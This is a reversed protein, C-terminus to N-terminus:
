ETEEVLKEVNVSYIAMKGDRDTQFLVRQSDPSFRPSVQAPDSARHECLSLERRVSRVLLLVTPSAKSRSAGAFVSGDGNSGFAVFQSTKAVLSDKRTEVNYERITNVEAPDAPLALYLLSRGDPSWLFQGIAGAHAEVAGIKSGDQAVIRVANGAARCALQRTQPRPAPETIADATELTTSASGDALRVARLRWGAAGKEIVFALEGNGTVSFEGTPEFGEPIRYVVRSRRGAIPRTCLVRGSLWALQREGPLLTLAAGHLPEDGTLQRSEGTKMDLRWAQMSGSRESTYFLVHGRRTMSTQWVAPLLSLYSPNTIRSVPLETSPDRYRRIETSSAAPTEARVVSAAAAFSLFARRSPSDSM